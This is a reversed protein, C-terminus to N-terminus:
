HFLLVHNVKATMDSSGSVMYDGSPHIAISNVSDMHASYHQVPCFSTLREPPARSSAAFCRLWGGMRGARLFLSVVLELWAAPARVRAVRSGALRRLPSLDAGSATPEHSHGLDQHHQGRQMSCRVARRPPFHRGPGSRHSRLFHTCLVATVLGSLMMDWKLVPVADRAQLCRAARYGCGYQRIM